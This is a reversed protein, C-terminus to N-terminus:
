AVGIVFCIPRVPNEGANDRRETVMYWAPKEVQIYRELKYIISDHRETDAVRFDLAEGPLEGAERAFTQRLRDQLSQALAVLAHTGRTLLFLQHLVEGGDGAAGGGKGLKIAAARILNNPVVLV